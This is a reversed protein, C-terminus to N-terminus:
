IVNLHFTLKRIDDFDAYTKLKCSVTRDVPPSNSDETDLVSSCKRFIVGQLEGMLDMNLPSLQLEPTDSHSKDTMVEPSGPDSSPSLPSYPRSRCFLLITKLIRVPTHKQKYTHLVVDEEQLL